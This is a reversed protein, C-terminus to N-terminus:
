DWKKSTWKLIMKGDIGLEEFHDLGKLNGVLVRSTNREVRM